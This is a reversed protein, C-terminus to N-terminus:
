AERREDVAAAAQQADHAVRERGLVDVHHWRALEEGVVPAVADGPHLPTGQGGSEVHLASEVVEGEPHHRAGGLVFDHGAEVPQELGPAPQPGHGAPQLGRVPHEAALDVPELGEAEQDGRDEEADRREQQVHRHRAREGHLADLDRREFREAIRIGRDAPVVDLPRQHDGDESPEEPDRGAGAEPAHHDIEVFQVELERDEV